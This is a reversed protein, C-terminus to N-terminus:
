LEALSELRTLWAGFRPCKQRLSDLGECEVVLPGHTEKQYSPIRARLRKSPATAPGDDVDEPHVGQLEARLDTLGNRDEEADLLEGLADLGALVLAEFEHRQLYPIVRWDNVVTAMAQELREARQMTDAVGRHADLEPFDGPLGYLDFLTSFRVNPRNQSRMLNELDKRWHKWHGGGKRKRGAHDRSTAVVVPRTFVERAALHPGLVHTVFGEETPGEVLVYLEIM